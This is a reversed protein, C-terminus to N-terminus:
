GTLAAGVQEGLTAAVQRAALSPRSGADGSLLYRGQVRSGSRVLLEVDDPPFGATDVPWSAGDVLIRGDAELRPHRGIFTDYEFRCDRLDLLVSLEAGVQRVVDRPESATAVAETARRIGELYAQDVAAAMRHRRGRVAIESVAAGVIVLLVLTQVNARNAIAFSGYPETLLVDFALGSVVAAVLGAVRSGDAAVAVVVVVLILAADAPPFTSRFPVILLCVLIPLVVAAVLALADRRTRPVV